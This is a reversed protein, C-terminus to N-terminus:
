KVKTIKQESRKKILFSPQTDETGKGMYAYPFDERNMPVADPYKQMLADYDGCDLAHAACSAVCVPLDGNDVRDICFDCKQMPHPLLWGEQQTPEQKDGAIKPVAFPCAEICTTLSQCKSRDVVVVGDERKSIANAGCATLCAPQACHNCAMSLPYFQGAQEFTQQSRWRVAGPNVQNWDKCAVTCANCSM